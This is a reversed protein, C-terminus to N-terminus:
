MDMLHTLGGDTRADIDKAHQTLEYGSDTAYCGVVIGRGTPMDPVQSIASSVTYGTVGQQLHYWGRGSTTISYM